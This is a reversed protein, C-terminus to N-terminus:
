WESSPPGFYGKEPIELLPPIGSGDYGAYIVSNGWWDIDKPHYQVAFFIIIGALAIGTVIAAEMVYAYKRWWALYRSKIYGNFLVALYMGGVQYTLNYPAWGLCGVVFIIPNFYLLKRRYYNITQSKNPFYKTLIQPLIVQIFWFFVGALAGFLFMWKMVPYKDFMKKPGIVGWAVSATFFTTEGPCTFKQKNDPDCLGDLNLQFQIVGLCVLGNVLTAWLQLWFISRPPLHAYHTLKQDTTYNQAQAAITVSLAKILNLAMFRGPLAYGIILETIVNLSLSSATYAAFVTFPIIFVFVLGLVFVLTWVPTDVPWAKVLVISLAFMIVMVIYFWWDPVEPYNKMYRSFPDERGHYSSRHVYRLAMATDKLADWMARWDMLCTYVFSLPYVAFFSSYLMLNGASYYPTSYAHYKEDDFRYDTLIKSVKYVKGQNDYLRNANIPLYATWSNNTYYLALIVLGGFFTGAFGIASVYLPLTIPALSSTAQNWDFTPIPNFGLGTVSGTVRALDANEPAIWTMWNFTQLFNMLYNPIWFYIFSGVFVIMFFAYRSLLWGNINEKRNPALLAKNVALTPLLSPWMAKVPYVAVRKLIGALGFGMMQTVLMFVFQYGFSAAWTQNYYQPLYQVIINSTIYPTGSACSVMITTLLQEKQSWRGPNLSYRKGRFQFGWDPLAYQLARGCPYLLLQIVGAGLSIAPMRVSFFQNVFAAIGVWVTGLVWVRWTETTCDEENYPDTVSRVEPYPSWWNFVTGWYRMMLIDEPDVKEYDETGDFTHLLDRVEDRYEERFNNDHDHYAFNTKVINIAEEITTEELKEAMFHVERPYTGDNESPPIELQIAVFDLLSNSVEAIQTDVLEDKDMSSVKESSFVETHKDM